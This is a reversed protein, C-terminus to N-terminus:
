LKYRCAEACIESGNVSFRCLSRFEVTFGCVFDERFGLGMLELWGCRACLECRDFRYIRLRTTGAGEWNM